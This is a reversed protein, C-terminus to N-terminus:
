GEARLRLEVILKLEFDDPFQTCECDCGPPCWCKTAYKSGQTDGLFRLSYDGSLFVDHWGPQYGEPDSVSQSLSTGAIKTFTGLEFPYDGGIMWVSIDTLVQEFAALNVSTPDIRVALSTVEIKRPSPGLKTAVEALFAGYATAPDTGLKESEERLTWVADCFGCECWGDPTGIELSDRTLTALPLSVVGSEVVVGRAVTDGGTDTAEICRGQPDFDVCDGGGCAPTFLIAACSFVLAFACSQPVPCM